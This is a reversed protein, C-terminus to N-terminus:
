INIITRVFCLVLEDLPIVLLVLPLAPLAAAVALILTQRGTIPVARM